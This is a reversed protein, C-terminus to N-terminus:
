DEASGAPLDVLLGLVDLEILHIDRRMVDLTGYDSAFEMLKLM